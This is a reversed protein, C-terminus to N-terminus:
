FGLRNLEPVTLDISPGFRARFRVVMVAANLFRAPEVRPSSNKLSSWVVGRFKVM